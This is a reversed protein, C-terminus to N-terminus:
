LGGGRGYPLRRNGGGWQWKTEQSRAGSQKSQHHKVSPNTTDDTPRPNTRSAHHKGEMRDLMGRHPVLKLQNISRCNIDDNQV